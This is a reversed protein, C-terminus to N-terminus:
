KFFCYLIHIFCCYWLLKLIFDCEIKRLLCLSICAAFDNFFRKMCRFHLMEYMQFSSNICIWTSSLNKNQIVYEIYFFIWAMLSHIGDLPINWQKYVFYEKDFYLINIFDLKWLISFFIIIKWSSCFIKKFSIDTVMM